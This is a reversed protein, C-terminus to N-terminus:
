TLGRQLRKGRDVWLAMDLLRLPTERWDQPILASNKQTHKWAFQIYEFLIERKRGKTANELSVGVALLVQKDFIPVIHPYVFHLLTSRVAFACSTKLGRLSGAHRDVLCFLEEVKSIDRAIEQPLQRFLAKLANEIDHQINSNERIPKCTNAIAAPQSYLKWYLIAEYTGLVIYGKSAREDRVRDVLAYYLDKDTEPRPSFAYLSDANPCFRKCTANYDNYLSKWDFDTGIPNNM